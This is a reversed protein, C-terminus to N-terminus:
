LLGYFFRCRRATQEGMLEIDYNDTRDRDVQGLEDNFGPDQTCAYNLLVHKWDDWRSQEEEFTKPNFLEPRNVCRGEDRLVATTTQPSVNALAAQIRADIQGTAAASSQAVAQASQAATVLSRVLADFQEANM